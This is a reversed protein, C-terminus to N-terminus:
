RRLRNRQTAIKTQVVLSTIADPPLPPPPLESESESHLLYLPLQLTACDALWQTFTTQMDDVTLALVDGTASVSAETVNILPLYMRGRGARGGRATRKQILWACNQPPPLIGTNEGSVITDAVGVQPGLNTMVTVTAPGVNYVSAIASAAFTTSGMLANQINNAIGNFSLASDNKFGITVVMGEPDGELQIPLVFQGYGVPIVVGM